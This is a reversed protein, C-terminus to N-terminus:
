NFRKCSRNGATRPVKEGPRFYILSILVPLLVLGWLVKRGKITMMMTNMLTFNGFTM